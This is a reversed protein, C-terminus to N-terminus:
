VKSSTCLSIYIRPLQKYLHWGQKCLGHRLTQRALSWGALSGPRLRPGTGRIDTRERRANTHAVLVPQSSDLPRTRIQSSGSEM